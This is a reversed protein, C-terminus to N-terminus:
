SRARANRRAAIMRECEAVSVAMPKEVLLHVGAKLTKVALEVHPDFNPTALYVADITGSRLLQDFEEYAYVAPIDYMEGVKQAKEEHGTVLAVVESNGTHKVGSSFGDACDM